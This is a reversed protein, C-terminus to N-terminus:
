IKEMRRSGPAPPDVPAGAFCQAISMWENAVYGEVVLDTDAVNRVQTVTECFAVASGEIREPHDAITTADSHAAPAPFEWIAGSPATLRIWPVPGPLELRRNVFTWGFTRVGIEVINRIRDSHIRPVGMLDHVAQAHAWTEMYRATTFMSVGMDPGFWPLRAKPACRGLAEGLESATQKWAARLAKSSLDGFTERQLQKMDKRAKLAETLVAREPAFAEEGKASALSVRDFYHLHAVVDWPTWDKFGTPRDWDEPGLTEVFAHFADVEALFDEVVSQAM